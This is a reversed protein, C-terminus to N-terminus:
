NEQPQLQYIMVDENSYVVKLCKDQLIVTNPHGGAKTAILYSIGNQEMLDRRNSCMPDFLAKNVALREQLFEQKEPTRQLYAWSGLFMHRESYATYYYFRSRDDPEPFANHSSLEVEYHRDIAFLADEPTNNRIWDMANAEALTIKDSTSEAIEPKYGMLGFYFDTSYAGNIAFTSIFSIILAILLYWRLKKSMKNRNDAIWKTGIMYVFPSVAAYFYDQSFGDVALVYFVTLGCVIVCALVIDEISINRFKKLQEIMWLIFPISVVALFMIFHIPIFLTRYLGVQDNTLSSMLFTCFDSNIWFSFLESRNVINGIEISSYNGEYQYEEVTDIINKEEVLLDSVDYGFFCLYEKGSGSELLRIFGASNSIKNLQYVNAKKSTEGDDEDKIFTGRADGLLGTTNIVSCKRFLEFVDDEGYEDFTAEKSFIYYNTDNSPTCVYIDNESDDTAIIYQYDLSDFTEILKERATEFNPNDSSYFEATQASAKEVTYAPILPNQILGVYWIATGIAILAISVFFQIQMRLSKKQLLQVFVAGILGFILCFSFAYKAGTLVIAAIIISVALYIDIKEKKVGKLLLMMLLCISPIALDIGNPAYFLNIAPSIFGSKVAVFSALRIHPLALFARSLFSTFIYLFIFLASRMRSGLYYRGICDFTLVLLPIMYLVSFFVFSDLATVGVFRCINVRFLNGFLNSITVKGFINLDIAPWSNNLSAVHSVNWLVDKYTYSHDSVALLGGSRLSLVTFAVCTTIGLLASVPAEPVFSRVSAKDSRIDKILMILGPISLVLGLFRSFFYDVPLHIFVDMFYSVPCLILGYLMSLALVESANNMNATKRALLYGPMMMVLAVFIVFKLLYIVPYHIVAFMTCIYILSLAFIIWSLCNVKKESKLFDYISKRAKNLMNM